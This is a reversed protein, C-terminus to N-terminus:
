LSLGTTVVDVVSHDIRGIEHEPALTPRQRIFDIRGAHHVRSVVFDPLVVEARHPGIGHLRTPAAALHM